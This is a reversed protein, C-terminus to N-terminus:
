FIDFKQIAVLELKVDFNV